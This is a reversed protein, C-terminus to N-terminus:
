PYDPSNNDYKETPTLKLSQTLEMVTQYLVTEQGNPINIEEDDEWELFKPVLVVRVEKTPDYVNFLWIKQHEIYYYQDIQGAEIGRIDSLDTVSLGYYACTPDSSLGVHRIGLNEPLSMYKAPIDIFFENRKEDCKPQICLYTKTLSDFVMDHDPNRGGLQMSAIQGMALEIYHAIVEPHYKTKVDDTIIGGSLGEQFLEILADRRM